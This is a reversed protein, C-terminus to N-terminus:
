FDHIFEVFQADFVHVFEVFMLLFLEAIM